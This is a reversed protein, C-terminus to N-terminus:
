QSQFFSHKGGILKFIQIIEIHIVKMSHRIGALSRQRIWHVPYQHKYTSKKQNICLSRHIQKLSIFKRKSM